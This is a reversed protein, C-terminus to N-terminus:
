SVMSDPTRSLVMVASTSVMWFKAEEAVSPIKTSM